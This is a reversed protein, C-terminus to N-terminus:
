HPQRRRLRTLLALALALEAGLGCSPRENNRQPKGVCQPDPGAPDGNGPGLVSVGGDFDTGPQGDDNVGNQCQPSETIVATNVCAPDAADYFGDGDDDLGNDCVPVSSPGYVVRAGAIDDPSPERNIETCCGAATYMVEDPGAAPHGLGMAAHGLEHLMLNELDNAWSLWPDGEVGPLIEFSSSLNFVVDGALPDPFFLDNGPPGYGVGGLWQFGGVGSAFFAGIRIDPTTAGSSAMPLGPDTVPGVFTIGATRHWTDMARALAADFAGAGYVGDIQARFLTVNSGGTVEAALYFSPEITTGDPMFGWTVTAPTGHTPDDWKSCCTGGITVYDARAPAAIAALALALVLKWRLM